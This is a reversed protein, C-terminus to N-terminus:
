YFVLKKCFQHSPTLRTRQCSSSPLLSTTLICFNHSHFCHPALLYACPSTTSGQSTEFFVKKNHTPHSVHMQQQTKKFNVFWFGALNELLFPFLTCSLNQGNGGGGIGGVLFCVFCSSLSLFRSSLIISEDFKVASSIV